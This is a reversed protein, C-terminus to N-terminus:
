TAYHSGDLYVSSGLNLVVVAAIASKIHGDCLDAGIAVFVLACDCERFVDFHVSM